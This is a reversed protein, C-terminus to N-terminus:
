GPGARALDNDIGVGVANEGDVQAPSDRRDACGGDGALNGRLSPHCMLGLCHYRNIPNGTFAYSNAGGLDGLPDRNIFRGPSPSCYRRGSCTVGTEPDFQRTSWTFPNEDTCAGSRAIIDGCPDHEYAAM